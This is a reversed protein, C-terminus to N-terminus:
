FEGRLGFIPFIPLGSIEQFNEFDYDYRINEANMRNTLNQVDLYLFLIWDNFVWEKDFRFDFQFIGM